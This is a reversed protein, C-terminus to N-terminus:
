FLSLQRGLNPNGSFALLEIIDYQNGNHKRMAIQNCHFDFRVKSFLQKSIQLQKVSLERGISIHAPASKKLNQIGVAIRVRRFLENFNVKSKEQPLVFTCASQYSSIVTDFIAIFGVETNALIKIRKSIKKFEKETTEFEVITIHALSKVSGFRGTKSRLEKKFGKFLEIIADSPHIVISYKELM